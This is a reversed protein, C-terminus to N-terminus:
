IAGQYDMYFCIIATIEKWAFMISNEIVRNTWYLIVFINM